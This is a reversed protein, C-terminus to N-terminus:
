ARVRNATSDRIPRLKPRGVSGKDDGYIPVQVLSLDPFWCDGKYIGPWREKDLVFPELPVQGTPVTSANVSSNLDFIFIDLEPRSAPQSEGGDMM